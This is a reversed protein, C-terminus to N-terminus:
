LFSGSKESMLGPRDTTILNTNTELLLGEERFCGVPPDISFLALVSPEPGPMM